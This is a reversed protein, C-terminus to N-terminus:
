EAASSGTELEITGESGGLDIVRPVTSVLGRIPAKPMLEEELRLALRSMFCDPHNQVLSDMKRVASMATTHDRNGFNRGIEPFSLGRCRRALWMSLHRVEVLSKQRCKGIVATLPVIVGLAKCVSVTLEAIDERMPLPRPSTDLYPNM